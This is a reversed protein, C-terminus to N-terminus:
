ISIYIYHSGWLNKFNNLPFCLDLDLLYSDLDLFKVYFVLGIFSSLFIHHLPYSSPILDELCKFTDFTDILVAHYHYLSTLLLYYLRFYLQYIQAKTHSFIASETLSIFYPNNMFLTPIDMFRQSSSVHWEM